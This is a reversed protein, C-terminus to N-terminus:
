PMPNTPIPAAQVSQVQWGNETKVLNATAIQQGSTGAALKPFATKTEASNAWAPPSAVSYHYTVTYRTGSDDAPASSDIAAVEPHGYCFNGYGPESPDQTWFSRGQDSIDYDNVPKSGILFRKKEEAKRTLLAADTLADYTKTEEDKSADAQAPFKVPATWLCEPRPAYYSNLASKFALQDVANKKCGTAFIMVWATTLLLFRTARM